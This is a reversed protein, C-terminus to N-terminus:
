RSKNFIFVLASIVAIFALIVLGVKLPSIPAHGQVEGTQGNVMYRYTKGKYIYASMWVPLLIHKFKIDCYTTDVSLCRVEDANIQRIVANNIEERIHNKARDWGEKLNISYREALFGSLFQPKYMVLENLHFPELKKMLGENVQNSANVLVDNFFEDYRGSVYRWRIKRVQETVMKRHGNEEVWRTETEYYYTGAEATYTSYANSDYTWSPIYVGSLRGGKFENKLAKPAFFRNKIWMKFGELANERTIKFPILSEPVIGPSEEQKVVHPSGCFACFKAADTEDLVTQAGCNQCRIVRKENGWNQHATDEASFFDHEQIGYSTKEVDTKGGCYPCILAQCEPAFEMNGGCSPCPYNHTSERKINGESNDPVTEM